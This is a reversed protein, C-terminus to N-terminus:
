EAVQSTGLELLNDDVPNLLQLLLLLRCKLSRLALVVESDV